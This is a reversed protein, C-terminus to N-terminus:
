HWEPCYYFPVFEGVYRDACCGVQIGTLRRRKIDQYGIVTPSSGRDVLSKDSYLGGDGIIASLNSVDTIHYILIDNPDMVRIFPQPRGIIKGPDDLFHM